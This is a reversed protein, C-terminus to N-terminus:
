NEGSLGKLTYQVDICWKQVDKTLNLMIRLVNRCSYTKKFYMIFKEAIRHLLWNVENPPILTLFFKWDSFPDHCDLKHWIATLRFFDFTKTLIAYNGSHIFGGYFTFFSM